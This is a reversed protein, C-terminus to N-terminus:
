RENTFKAKITNYLARVVMYLVFVVIFGGSISYVIDGIICDTYEVMLGSPIILAAALYLKGLWTHAVSYWANLIVEKIKRIM